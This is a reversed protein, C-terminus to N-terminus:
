CALIAGRGLRRRLAVRGISNHALAHRNHNISVLEHSKHSGESCQSEGQENHLASDRALAIRGLRPNEIWAVVQNTPNAIRRSDLLEELLERFGIQDIAPVGIPGLILNGRSLEIASEAHDCGSHPEDESDRARFRDAPMLWDDGITFMNQKLSAGVEDGPGSRAPGRNIERQARNSAREDLREIPHRLRVLEVVVGRVGLRRAFCQGLELAAVPEPYEDPVSHGPQLRAAITRQM